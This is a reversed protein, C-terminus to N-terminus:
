YIKLFFAVLSFTSAGHKSSQGCLCLINCEVFFHLVMYLLLSCVKDLTAVGPLIKGKLFDWIVAANEILKYEKPYKGNEVFAMCAAHGVVTVDCSSRCTNEIILALKTGSCSQQLSDFGVPGIWLIKQCSLFFFLFIWLIKQCSLSFFLIKYEVSLLNTGFRMMKLFHMSFLVDMLYINCFLMHWKLVENNGNQPM